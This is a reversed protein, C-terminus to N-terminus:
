TATGAANPMAFGASTRVTRLSVHHGVRVTRSSTDGISIVLVDLGPSGWHRIAPLEDASLRGTVVVARSAGTVALAAAVPRLPTTDAAPAAAALVDLAAVESTPRVVGTSWGGEHRRGLFLELHLGVRLVAASVSAAVRVADEFAEAPYRDPSPDLVVLHGPVDQVASHRVTLVGTRATSAWHILRTDDGPVYERVSHFATGSPVPEASGRQDGTIARTGALGLPHVRPHVILITDSGTRTGRRVLRMPDGRGIWCRPIVHIGRRPCPLDYGHVRQRTGPPLNDIAFMVPGEPLFEVLELSVARRGTNSISLRCGVTTGEAVRTSRLRRDVSVKLPLCLRGAATLLLVAGSLGISVLEPYDTSVGILVFTM